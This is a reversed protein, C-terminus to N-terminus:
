PVFNRCGFRNGDHDEKSTGCSFCAGNPVAGLDDLMTSESEAYAEAPSLNMAITGGKPFAQPLTIPLPADLIPDYSDGDMWEILIYHDGEHDAPQSCRQKAKSYSHCQRSTM